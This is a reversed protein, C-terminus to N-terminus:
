NQSRFGWKKKSRSGIIFAKMTDPLEKALQGVSKQLDEAVNKYNQKMVKKWDIKEFDECSQWSPIKVCKSTRLNTLSLRDVWPVLYHAYNTM